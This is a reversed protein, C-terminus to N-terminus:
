WAGGIYKEMLIEQQLCHIDGAYYDALAADCLKRAGMMAEKGYFGAFSLINVQVKGGKEKFRECYRVIDKAYFPYREPHALVPCFGRGQLGFLIDDVYNSPGVYSHEVLVEGRNSAMIEGRELVELMFEGMRYEAGSDVEVRVGEERLRSKLVFLMSEVDKPTNIMAPYVVHPTCTLRKLGVREMRKVIMVAEDMTKVGDDLGPLVHAHIDNEYEFFYRKRRNFFLMIM